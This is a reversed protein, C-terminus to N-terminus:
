RRMIEEVYDKAEKLGIGTSERYLKIAAVKQGRQLAQRVNAPVNAYRADAKELSTDHTNSRAPSDREGSKVLLKRLLTVAAAGVLSGVILPFIKDM